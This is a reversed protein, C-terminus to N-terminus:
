EKGLIVDLAWCGRVHPGPSRLHTLLPHPKRLEDLRSLISECDICYNRAYRDNGCPCQHLALLLLPEEEQSGATPCGAEELADSLVALRAPDLSGDDQRIRGRNQCDPCALLKGISYGGCRPCDVLRGPREDYAAQALSLVQPTVCDPDVWVTSPGKGKGHKLGDLIVSGLVVPAFPDGVVERLLAAVPEPPQALDVWARLGRTAGYRAERWAAYGALMAFAVGQGAPRDQFAEWEARAREEETCGGDALKEAAEVARRSSDDLRGWALRAVACVFLRLKRDSMARPGGPEPLLARLMAAPDTSALWEARDM